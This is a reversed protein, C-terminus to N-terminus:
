NIVIGFRTSMAALFLRLKEDATSNAGAFATSALAAVYSAQNNEIWTTAADLATRLDDKTWRAPGETGAPARHRILWYWADERQQTTLAM